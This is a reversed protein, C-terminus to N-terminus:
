PETNWRRKYEPQEILGLNHDTEILEIRQEVLKCYDEPWEVPIETIPTSGHREFWTTELEGAAMKRAMVIEFARQGLEIQPPSGSYRLDAGTLGYLHYCHWDLEEQTTIMRQLVTEASLRANILTKSTFTRRKAMADPLCNGY